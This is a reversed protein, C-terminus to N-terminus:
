CKQKEGTEEVYGYIGGPTEEKEIAIYGETEAEDSEEPVDIEASTDRDIFFRCAEDSPNVQFDNRACWASQSDFDLSDLDCYSCHFCIVRKEIEHSPEAM